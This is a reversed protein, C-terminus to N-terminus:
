RFRFLADIIVNQEQNYFCRGVYKVLDEVIEEPEDEEDEESENEKNGLNAAPLAGIAGGDSESPTPLLNASKQLISTSSASPIVSNVIESLNQNTFLVPRKRKKIFSM